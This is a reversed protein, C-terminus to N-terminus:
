PDEQRSAPPAATSGRLLLRFDYLLPPPATPRGSSILMGVAGAAMEAVPQRVTTLQPWVVRGSESDDFGAVSLQAPVDLGLRHAMAIVGLAMDDNSAFVATPRDRGDLLRGAATWGSRFTFDGQLVHRRQATEGAEGLADRFGLHRRESAAHAAPGRIFGIRRHGLALLHRTMDRAARRDDMHVYAGRAPGHGPAIRVYPIRLSDLFDLVEARDCVPPSLVVGDVRLAGALPALQEMVDARSGALKEILVHYGAARCAQMAGAQMQTVYNASPNDFYLGILYARAGALSRAAINPRYGLMEVARAVRERTRSSVHPEANVVRSVTKISVGALAAVDRITASGPRRRPASM